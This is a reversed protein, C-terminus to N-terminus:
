RSILEDWRASSPLYLEPHKAIDKLLWDPEFWKVEAVEEAQVSFAAAPRDITAFYWQTYRPRRKFDFYMKPGKRLELSTLGIEEATERAINDDYTEGQSVTGGVAPGWLGPYLPKTDSRKALLIDGQSNTLWLATVRVTDEPTLESRPKVGIEQDQADVIIVHEEM